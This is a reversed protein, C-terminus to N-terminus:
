KGVYTDIFASFKGGTVTTGTATVELKLYKKKCDRPIALSIGMGEGLSTSAVAPSSVIASYSIDDDSGKLVFTATVTGTGALATTTNIAVAMGAASTNGLKLKNEFDKATDKVLDASAGFDLQIDKRELAEM